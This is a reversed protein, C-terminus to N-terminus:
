QKVLKSIAEELEKLAETMATVGTGRAAKAKPIVANLAQISEPTYTSSKKAEAEANTIAAELLAVVANVDNINNMARKYAPEGVSAFKVNSGDQKIHNKCDIREESQSAIPFDNGGEFRKYLQDTYKAM